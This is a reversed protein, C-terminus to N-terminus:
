LDGTGVLRHRRAERMKAALRNINLVIPRCYPSYGPGDERVWANQMDIVILATKDPELRDFAHMKGGRRKMVRAVIDPSLQVNHMKV